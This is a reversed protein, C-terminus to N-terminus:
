PPSILFSGTTLLRPKDQARLPPALLSIRQEGAHFRPLTPESFGKASLGFHTRTLFLNWERWGAAFGTEHKLIL